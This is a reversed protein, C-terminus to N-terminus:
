KQENGPIPSIAIGSFAIGSSFGAGGAPASELAGLLVVGIPHSSM